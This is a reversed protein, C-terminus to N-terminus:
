PQIAGCEQCYRATPVLETRCNICFKFGRVKPPRPTPIPAYTPMPVPPQVRHRSRRYVLLVLFLAIAVIVLLTTNEDTVLPAVVTQSTTTTTPPPPPGAGIEDPSRGLAIRFANEGESTVRFAIKTEEDWFMDNNLVLSFRGITYARGKENFPADLSKCDDVNQGTWGSCDPTDPNADVIVALREEISSQILMDNMKFVIVGETPLGSDTGARRRAHVFYYEDPKGEIRILLAKPEGSSDLSYITYQGQPSSLEVPQIWGLIYKTWGDLDAVPDLVPGKDMLSWFGVGGEGASYGDKDYVYLDRAGLGHSYEHLFVGVSEQESFRALGWIIHQAGGKLPLLLKMRELFQFDEESRAEDVMPGLCLCSSWLDNIGGGSAEGKGAYLTVILKYNRVDINTEKLLLDEVHAFYLEKGRDNDGREAGPNPAGYFAMIEPLTLPEEYITYDIYMKGYSSTRFWQDMTDIYGKIERVSSTFRVDPFQILLILTKVGGIVPRPLMVAQFPSVGSLGTSSSVTAQHGATAGSILTLYMM